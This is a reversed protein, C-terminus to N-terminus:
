DLHWFGEYKVVDETSDFYETGMGEKLGRKWDGQYQINESHPYFAIGLGDRLGDFFNGRYVLKYIKDHNYTEGPKSWKM